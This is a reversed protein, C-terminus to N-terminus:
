ALGILCKCRHHQAYRARGVGGVGGDDDDGLDDDVNGDNKIVCGGCHHSIKDELLFYPLLLPSCPHLAAFFYKPMHRPMDPITPLTGFLLFHM